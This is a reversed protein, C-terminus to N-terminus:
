GRPRPLCTHADVAAFDGNGGPEQSISGRTSIPPYFPFHFMSLLCRSRAARKRHTFAGPVQREM